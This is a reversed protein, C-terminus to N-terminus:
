TLKKTEIVGIMYTFIMFIRNGTQSKYAFFARANGVSLCVSRGVSLGVLANMLISSADLFRTPAKM